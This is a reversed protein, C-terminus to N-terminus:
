VIFICLKLRYMGFTGVPSLCRNKVRLNREGCIGLIGMLTMFVQREKEQQSVEVGETLKSVITRMERDHIHECLGNGLKKVQLRVDVRKRALPAPALLFELRQWFGLGFTIQM